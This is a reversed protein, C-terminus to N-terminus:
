ATATAIRHPLDVCDVRCGRGDRGPLGWFHRWAADPGVKGGDGLSERATLRCGCAACTLVASDDRHFAVPGPLEGMPEFPHLKRPDEQFSM